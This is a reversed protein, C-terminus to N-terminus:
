QFDTRFLWQFSPHQLQLELVKAVQHLSSVWQSLGQHHSLNFAPSPCSLPHAQQIVDGVRHVYTQAFKPFEHLVPFGPMSCDMLSYLTPCSQAVSSFQSYMMHFAQSPSCAPNLIALLFILLRLYASSVVRIASLSSSSFLRKIFTFSLSFSPKLSLM